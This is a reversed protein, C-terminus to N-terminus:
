LWARRPSCMPEAKAFLSAGFSPRAPAAAHQITQVATRVRAIRHDPDERVAQGQARGLAWLASCRQSTRALADRMQGLRKPGGPPHRAPEHLLAQVALPQAGLWRSGIGGLFNPRWRDSLLPTAVLRCAPDLDNFGPCLLYTQLSM